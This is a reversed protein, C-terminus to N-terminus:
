TRVPCPCGMGRCYRVGRVTVSGRGDSWLAAERATVVDAAPHVPAPAQRARGPVVGREVYSRRQELGGDM